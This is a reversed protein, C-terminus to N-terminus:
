AAAYCREEMLRHHQIQMILYGSDPHLIGVNMLALEYYLRALRHYGIKLM